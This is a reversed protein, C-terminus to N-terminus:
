TVILDGRKPINNTALSINSAAGNLQTNQIDTVRESQLIASELGSIRVILGNGATAAWGQKLELYYADIIGEIITKSNAENFTPAWTIDTTINITTESVAQVTVVHGIPAIGDGQGQNAPPDIAAQVESVLTSSPVNFDSAIITVSIPVSPGTSRVAKSGGVGAIANTFERYAAKNGAFSRGQFSDKYEQKLTALNPIDEGPVLVETIQASNLGAITSVPIITGVSNNSAAGAEVAELTYEFGTINNIVEFTLTNRTFRSGIPVAVNFVGKVRAKTAVPAPIGRNTRLRLTGEMNAEDIFTNAEVQDIQIDLMEFESACPALTNYIVSTPRKDEGADVRGLLRNLIERFAM